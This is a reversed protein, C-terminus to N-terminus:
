RVLVKIGSADENADSLQVWPRLRVNTRTCEQAFRRAVMSLVGHHYFVNHYM